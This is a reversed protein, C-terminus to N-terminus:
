CEGINPCHAEECVSHLNADRMLRKLRLYNPGGPARVKLWPPKRERIEVVPLEVRMRLVSDNHWAAKATARVRPVRRAWAPM